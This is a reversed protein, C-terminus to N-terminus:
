TPRGAEVWTEVREVRALDQYSGYWHQAPLVDLDTGFYGNFLHRFLNVNTDNHLQWAVDTGPTYAAAFVSFREWIAREWVARERNTLIADSAPLLPLGGVGKPPVEMDLLHSSGHDAQIIIIPEPGGGAQIADIAALLMANVYRVQRAYAAPDDYLFNWPVLRQVDPIHGEEDFVLPPHPLALHAIVFDPGPRLGATAVANGQCAALGELRSARWPGNLFDLLTLDLVLSGLTEARGCSM